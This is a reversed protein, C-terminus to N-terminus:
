KDWKIIDIKGFIPMRKAEGTCIGIFGIIEFVVAIIAIALSLPLIIVTLAAIVESLFIWLQQNAYFKIYKSDVCLGAIILVPPLLWGIIALVKRSSVDDKEFVVEEAKKPEQKEEKVEVTQKVEEKVEANIENEAM